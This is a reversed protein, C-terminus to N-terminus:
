RRLPVVITAAPASENGRVDVATVRYRYRTGADASTDRFSPSPLLKETLQTGPAASEGAANVAERYVRYGALPSILPRNDPSNWVLDVMYAPPDVRNDFYAAATLDTPAAPAYTERLVFEAVAPQSQLEVTRGALAVSVTRVATYRYRTEPKLTGDLLSSNLPRDSTLRVVDEGTRSATGLVERTFSVTGSSAADPQWRLVAGYRSGEVHLSQVAAPAPGSATFAAASSEAARGASNFVAVRYALSRREGQSLNEPLQETWVPPEVRAGSQISPAPLDLSGVTTCPGADVERCFVARLGAARIPLKDTTRAPPTFRLTVTSGARMASLDRVPEPLNLSPARPPGPTACGAAALM